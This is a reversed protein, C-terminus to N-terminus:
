VETVRSSSVIQREKEKKKRKWLDLRVNDREKEWYKKNKIKKCHCNPEPNQTHNLHEDPTQHPKSPLKTNSTLDKASTTSDLGNPTKQTEKHLVHPNEKQNEQSGFM